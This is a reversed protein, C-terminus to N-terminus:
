LLSIVEKFHRIVSRKYQENNHVAFSLKIYTIIQKDHEYNKKDNFDYESIVNIAIYKDDYIKMSKKSVDHYKNLIPFKNPDIYEIKSVVILASNTDHTKNKFECLSHFKQQITMYERNGTDDVILKKERHIYEIIDQM